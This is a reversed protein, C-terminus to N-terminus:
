RERFCICDKSKTTRPRAVTAAGEDAEEQDELAVVQSESSSEGEDLSIPEALHISLNEFPVALQHARHLARLGAADCVAPATVGIRDLYAAVTGHDM